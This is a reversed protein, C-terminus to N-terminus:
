GRTGCSQADLCLHRGLPSTQLTSHPGELCIKHWRVSLSRDTLTNHSPSPIRVHFNSSFNDLLYYWMSPSIETRRHEFRYQLMRFAEDLEGIECLQYLFIDYLWPQVHIEDAQMQELKDMAAEFQRDRLLGTVLNHWGDPSLGFWREKMEQMIQNRLLYDPHIALVQLVGHYLGSDAGVGEEKMEKLLREVVEASGNEADANARILADYHILAPKEGREKILYEVLDAIRHYAGEQSGIQRLREHLHTLPVDDFSSFKTFPKGLPLGSVNPTSKPELSPLVTRVLPPPATVTCVLKEPHSTSKPPRLQVPRVSPPTTASYDLNESTSNLEKYAVVTRVLNENSRPPIKTSGEFRAQTSSHFQRARSSRDVHHRTPLKHPSRIPYSSQAIAFTDIAPCLCRWLGDIPIRTVPM